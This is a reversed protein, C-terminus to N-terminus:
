RKETNVKIVQKNVYIDFLFPRVLFKLLYCM